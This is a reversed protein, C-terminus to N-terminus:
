DRADVGSISYECTNLAGWGVVSLAGGVAGLSFMATPISLVGTAFIVQHANAANRRCLKQSEGKLFIVSARPWGVTRFNVLGDKKFVEHEEDVGTIPDMVDGTYGNEVSVAPSGAMGDIKKEDYM